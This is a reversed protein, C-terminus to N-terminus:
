HILHFSLEAFLYAADRHTRGTLHLHSRGRHGNGVHFHPRCPMTSAAASACHHAAFAQLNNDEIVLAHGHTLGGIRVLELRGVLRKNPAQAFMRYGAFPQGSEPGIDQGADDIFGTTQRGMIKLGALKFPGRFDATLGQRFELVGPATFTRSRVAAVAAAHDAARPGEPVLVAVENGLLGLVFCDPGM